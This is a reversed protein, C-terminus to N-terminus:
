LLLFIGYLVPAMATRGGHRKIMEDRVENYKKAPVPIIEGDKM